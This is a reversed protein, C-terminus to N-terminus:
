RSNKDALSQELVKLLRPAYDVVDHQKFRERSADSAKEYKDSNDLLQETAKAMASIDGFKVLSGTLGDVIQENCGPIDWAISPTGHEMAESITTPRGERHSPHVYLDADAYINPTDHRHGLFTVYKGYKNRIAQGYSQNREDGVFLFRYNKGSEVLLKAFKGFDEVGKAKTIRGVSVIIKEGSDIGLEQRLSGKTSEDIRSTIGPIVTIAREPKVNFTKIAATRTADSNCIVVDARKYNLVVYKRYWSKLIYTPSPRFGGDFLGIKKFDPSAGQQVCSKLVDVDEVYNLIYSGRQGLHLIDINEDRILKALQRSFRRRYFPNLHQKVGSIPMPIRRVDVGAHEFLKFKEHHGNYIVITPIKAIVLSTALNVADATTGDLNPGDISPMFMLIKPKLNPM